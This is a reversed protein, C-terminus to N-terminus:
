LMLGGHYHHVGALSHDEMTLIRETGRFSEFTDYNPDVVNFYRFRDGPEGGFRIPGRGGRFLKKDYADRLATKLFPRAEQRYCGGYHMMWVPIDSCWIVTMGHSSDSNLKAFWVDVLKLEHREREYTVCKSGPLGPFPKRPASSAYGHLMGEFFFERFWAMDPHRRIQETMHLWVEQLAM